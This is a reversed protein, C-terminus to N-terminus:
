DTAGMDAIHMDSTFPPYAFSFDYPTKKLDPLPPPNFSDSCGALAFAVAVTISLFLRSV